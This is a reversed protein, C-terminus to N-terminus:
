YGLILDAAISQDLAILNIREYVSVRVTSSIRLSPIEAHHGHKFEGIEM